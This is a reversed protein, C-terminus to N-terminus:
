KIAYPIVLSDDRNNCPCDIRRQVLVDGRECVGQSHWWLIMLSKAHKTNSRETVYSMGSTDM